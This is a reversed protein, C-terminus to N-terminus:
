HFFFSAAERFKGLRSARNRKLTTLLGLCFIFIHLLSLYSTQQINHINKYISNSPLRWSPGLSQTIQQISNKAKSSIIKQKIIYKKTNDALYLITLILLVLAIHNSKCYRPYEFKLNRGKGYWWIWVRKKFKKLIKLRYFQERFIVLQSKNFCKRLM